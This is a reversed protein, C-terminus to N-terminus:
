VPIREKNYAFRCQVMISTQEPRPPERRDVLLFSYRWYEGETTPQNFTLGNFDIDYDPKGEVHALFSNMSTCLKTEPPLFNVAWIQPSTQVYAAMVCLHSVALDNEERKCHDDIIM